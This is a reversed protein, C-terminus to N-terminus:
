LLLSTKKTSRSKMVLKLSQRLFNFIQCLILVLTFSTLGVYAPCTSVNSAVVNVCWACAYGRRVYKWGLANECVNCFIDAVVHIGTILERQEKEGLAVNVRGHVFGLM